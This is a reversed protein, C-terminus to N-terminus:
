LNTHNKTYLQEVYQTATTACPHDSAIGQLKISWVKYVCEQDIYLIRRMTYCKTHCMTDQNHCMLTVESEDFIIFLFKTYANM